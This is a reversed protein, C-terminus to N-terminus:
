ALEEKEEEEGEHCTFYLSLNYFKIFFFPFTFLGYISRLLSHVYISDLIICVCIPFLCHFAYM